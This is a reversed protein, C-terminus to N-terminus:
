WAVIKPIAAFVFKFVRYLYSETFIVRQLYNIIGKSLAQQYDSPAIFIAGELVLKNGKTSQFKSLILDCCQWLLRRRFM